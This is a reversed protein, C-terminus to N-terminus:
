MVRVRVAALSGAATLVNDPRLSDFFAYLYLPHTGVSSVLFWADEPMPGTGQALPDRHTLPASADVLARHWLAARPLPKCGCRLMGCLMCMPPARHPLRRPLQVPWGHATSRRVPLPLRELSGTAGATVVAAAVDPMGMACIELHLWTCHRLVIDGRHIRAAVKLMYIRLRWGRSSWHPAATM